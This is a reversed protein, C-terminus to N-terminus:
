AFEQVAWRQFEQTLTRAAETSPLWLLEHEKQFRPQAPAAATVRFFTGIKKFHANYFASWHYQAAQGLIEATIVKYAIEEYLERELGQRVDEGPDLGGGPLFLGFGTRIVAIHTGATSATAPPLGAADGAILAYAGPREVYTVGPLTDGFERL